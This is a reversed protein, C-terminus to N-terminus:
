RKHITSLGRPPRNLFFRLVFIPILSVLIMVVAVLAGPIVRARNREVGDLAQRVVQEATVTFIQPAPPEGAPSGERRAVSRFGTEVPGPCLATVSVHTNRLEVRLAETFSSVYAKTAAYVAMAPVPVFAAISSVNLIAARPMRVFTPLLHHSLRTLARINVALMKDIKAWDGKEFLGYDGLGANNILFDVQLGSEDLWALFQSLQADEALEVQKVVVSLHPSSAAFESKLADLREVRRAVLVLARAQPALQRAMEEGIGFSAGTILATCGDLFRM